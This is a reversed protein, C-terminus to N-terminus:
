SNEILQNEFVVQNKTLPIFQGKIQINFSKFTDFKSNSIKGQLKVFSVYRM